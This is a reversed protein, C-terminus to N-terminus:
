RVLFYTPEIQSSPEENLLLRFDDVVDCESCSKRREREGKEKAWVGRRWTKIRHDILFDFRGSYSISPPGFNSNMWIM